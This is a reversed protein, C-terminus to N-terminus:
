RDSRRFSGRLIRGHMVDGGPAVRELTARLEVKTLERPVGFVVRPRDEGGCVVVKEGLPQHRPGLLRYRIRYAAADPAPDDPDPWLSFDKRPLAPFFVLSDAPAGPHVDRGIVRIEEPYAFWWKTPEPHRGYASFTQQRVGACSAALTVGLLLLAAATLRYRSVPM